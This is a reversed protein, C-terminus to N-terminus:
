KRKKRKKKFPSDQAHLRSARFSMYWAYGVMVPAAAILIKFESSIFTNFFGHFLVAIALGTILHRHKYPDKPFKALGIYYGMIVATLAHMPVTLFARLWGTLEGYQFVYLINEFTAFGLSAMVTYMIGDYPENFAKKNWAYGVVVIFKSLEEVLAVLFLSSFLTVLFGNTEYVNIGFDDFLLDEIIGVPIIMAGGLLFTKAILHLPERDYKDRLYFILFIALAPGTALALLNM